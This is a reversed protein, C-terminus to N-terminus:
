GKVEQMRLWQQDIETMRDLLTARQRGDEPRTSGLLQSYRQHCNYYEQLLQEAISM